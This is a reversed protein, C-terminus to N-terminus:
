YSNSGSKSFRSALFGITWLIVEHLTIRSGGLFEIAKPSKAPRSGVQHGADWLEIRPLCERYIFNGAAPRLSTESFENPIPLKRKPSFDL